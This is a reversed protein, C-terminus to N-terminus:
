CDMRGIWQNVRKSDMYKEFAVDKAWSEVGEMSVQSKKWCM